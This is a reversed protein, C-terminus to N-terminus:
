LTKKLFLPNLTKWIQSISQMNEQFPFLFLFTFIKLFINVFCWLSFLHTFSPSVRPHWRSIKDSSGEALTRGIRKEFWYRGNWEHLILTLILIRYYGLGWQNHKYILSYGWGESNVEVKWFICLESVSEFLKRWLSLSCIGM